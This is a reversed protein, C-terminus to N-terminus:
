SFRRYKLSFGPLLTFYIQRLYYTIKNVTVIKNNCQMFGREQIERKKVKLIYYEISMNCM